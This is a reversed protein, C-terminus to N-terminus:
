NKLCGIPVIYVGDDRRYAIEIGTLAMLFSPEKMKEANINEKLKLLNKAAKEIGSAGLKVEIAAWRGDNLAVIADAELGTADRYHYVQGDISEAYVRSDRICLSEFLFGYYNFDDILRPTEGKLLLSPKTDTAKLHSVRKDPDQMYLDSKAARIVTMTMGCWKPGEILVAGSTQLHMHLTDDAIRNLYARNM